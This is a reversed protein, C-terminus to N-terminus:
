EVKTENVKTETVTTKTPAQPEVGYKASIWKEIMPNDKVVISLAQYGICVNFVWVWESPISSVQQFIKYVSYTGLLRTISTKGGTEQFANGIFAVGTKITEWLTIIFTRVTELKALIAIITFALVMLIYNSYSQWIQEM